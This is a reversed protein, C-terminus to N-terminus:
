LADRGYICYIHIGFAFYLYIYIYVCAYLTARQEQNPQFQERSKRENEMNETRKKEM